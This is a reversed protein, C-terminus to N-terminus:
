RGSRVFTLAENFEIRNEGIVGCEILDMVALLMCVKHPKNHGQLHMTNLERFKRLYTELAM